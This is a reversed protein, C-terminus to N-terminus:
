KRRHGLCAVAVRNATEQFPRFTCELEERVRTNDYCSVSTSLRATERTLLPKTRTLYSGLEFLAGVLVLLGNPLSRSPAKVDLNNALTNLIDRWLLNHGSLIYRRGTQGYRFAALCGLAVDEVDVINTGGKPRFPIKGDLLQDAIQMTNEGPRGPGMIVSPNVIVADLGMAVGRQVDMEAQYKSIAYATNLSSEKWQASEDVCDAQVTSRGLAAVSSVHVMRPVNAAIAADVVNATGTVNIQILKEEGRRGDFGVYAAAHIVGDVNTMAAELSEPDLVDGIQWDIQDKIDGLLDFTSSARHIARVAYGSNLLVRAITSGLFGTAGTILITV